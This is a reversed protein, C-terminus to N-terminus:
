TPISPPSNGTIPPTVGPKTPESESGRVRLRAFDEFVLDEDEDGMGNGSRPVDTEKEDDFSDFQILDIDAEGQAQESEGGEALGAIGSPLLHFNGPPPSELPKPHTLTFPLEAILEGGLAGAIVLRIKVKYQVIIGLNERM